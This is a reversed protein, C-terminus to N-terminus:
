RSGTAVQAKPIMKKIDIGFFDNPDHRSRHRSVHRCEQRQVDRPPMQELTM